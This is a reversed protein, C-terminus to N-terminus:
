HNAVLPETMPAGQKNWVIASRQDSTAPRQKQKMAMSDQVRHKGDRRWWAAAGPRTRGQAGQDILHRPHSSAGAVMGATRVRDLKRVELEVLDTRPISVRQNPTRGFERTDVFVTPVEVILTDASQSIMQGDLRRADSAGLLPAIRASASLSVRARVNVGPEVQGPEIPIYTFCGSLVVSAAVVSAFRKMAILHTGSDRAALERRTFGSKVRKRGQKGFTLVNQVCLVCLSRLPNRTDEPQRKAEARIRLFCGFFMSQFQLLVNLKM